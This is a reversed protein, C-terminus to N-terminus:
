FPIKRILSDPITAYMNPPLYIVREWSITPLSFGTIWNNPPIDYVLKKRCLYATTDNVGCKAFFVDEFNYIFKGNKEVFTGVYIKGKKTIYIIFPLMTQKHISDKNNVFCKNKYDGFSWNRVVPTKLSDTFLSDQLYFGYLPKKSTV